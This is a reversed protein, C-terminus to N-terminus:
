VDRPIKEEGGKYADTMPPFSKHQRTYDQLSRPVLGIMDKFVHENEPYREMNELMMRSDQDLSGNDKKDIYLLRAYSLAANNLLIKRYNKGQEQKARNLYLLGLAKWADKFERKDDKLSYIIATILSDKAKEFARRQAGDGTRDMMDGAHWRGEKLATHKRAM